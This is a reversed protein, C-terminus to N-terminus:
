WIYDTILRRPPPEIFVAGDGDEMYTCAKVMTSILMYLSNSYTTKPVDLCCFYEFSVDETADNNYASDGLYAITPESTFTVLADNELESDAENDSDPEDSLPEEIVEKYLLSDTFYNQVRKFPQKEVFM